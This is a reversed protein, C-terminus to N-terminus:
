CHTLSDGAVNVNYQNTGASSDIQPKPGRLSVSSVGEYDRISIIWSPPPSPPPLSPLPGPRLAASGSGAGAAM